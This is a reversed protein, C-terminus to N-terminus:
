DNNILYMGFIHLNNGFQTGYYAYRYDGTASRSSLSEAESTNITSQNSLIENSYIIIVDNLNKTKMMGDFGSLVGEWMLENEIQRAGSSLEDNLPEFLAGLGFPLAALGKDYVDLAPMISGPGVKGLKGLIGIWHKSPIKLFRLVQVQNKTSLTKFLGLLASLKAKRVDDPDFGYGTLINFSENGFNLNMQEGTPTIGYFQYKPQQSQDEDSDDDDGNIGLIAAAEQADDGTFTVSDSSNVIADAGSPDAWYIPNNDFGTYPSMSHHTVPDQVVWRAIAPDFQRM